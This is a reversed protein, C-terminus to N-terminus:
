CLVLVDEGHSLFSLQWVKRKKHAMFFSMKHDVESILCSNVQM